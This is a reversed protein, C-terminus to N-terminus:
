PTEGRAVKRRALSEAPWLTKMDYYVPFAPIHAPLVVWPQKSRAFIFADPPCAAPDDLTGVRVFCILAGAGHYHSWLAVHCTPCRAIRQGKGSESATDIM